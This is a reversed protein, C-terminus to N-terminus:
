KCITLVLLNSNMSKEVSNALLTTCSQLELQQTSKWRHYDEWYARKRVELVYVSLM